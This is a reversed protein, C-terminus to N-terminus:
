ILVVLDRSTLLHTTYRREDSSLVPIELAPLVSSFAPVILGTSGAGMAWLASVAPLIVVTGLRCVM